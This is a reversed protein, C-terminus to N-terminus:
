AADAPSLVQQKCLDLVHNLAACLEDLRALAYPQPHQAFTRGQLKGFRWIFGDSVAGYVIRQPDGNLLQVADMAALCQAWGADFDNRKAEMIMALPTEMVRPSLPSRKGIIYDPVGLLEQGNYLPVHSWLGLVKAYVKVVERLVPYLLNECVAWESCDVDFHTLTVELEARFYESVPLALPMVFEERVETVQLARIAEALTKFSGFPM